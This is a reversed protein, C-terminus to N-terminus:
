MKLLKVIHDVTIGIRKADTNIVFDAKNYYVEREELLTEIRTIFDEKPRENLVLDIFLPRDTKHRIRKYIAEPSCKLYVSKGFRKIIDVNGANAMAGGGLAIVSNNNYSLEELTKSELGRFYEEGKKEFIEVVKMNEKQEIVKDLDYFSWGLTNALIPGITSKGSTMFGALYIIRIEM